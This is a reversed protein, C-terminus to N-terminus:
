KESKTYHTYKNEREIFFGENTVKKGSELQFEKSSFLREPSLAMNESNANNSIEIKYYDEAVKKAFPFHQHVHVAFFYTNQTVMYVYFNPKSDPRYQPDYFEVIETGLKSELELVLKKFSIAEHPYSPGQKTFAIQENHAIHVYVPVNYKGEFPYIGTKEKYSEILSGYHELHKLRFVDADKQFEVNTGSCATVVAFIAGVVFIRLKM